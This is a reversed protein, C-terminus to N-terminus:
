DNYGQCGPCFYLRRSGFTTKQIIQRCQYCAKGARAFVHHRFQRRPVGEAKLQAVRDLDNTIGRTKYSQRTVELIAKALRSIERTKLDAIKMSPGMRAVFLIESRLYNGIGSLWSQDMLLHGIQRRTSKIASVKAQILKLDVNDCLIDPGLKSLFPHNLVEEPSLVEIASASFLLASKHSNHIALRLQRNTKPLWGPKGLFWKGYLQNHSYISLENSFTIILAKGRPKVLKVTTNRLIKEYAKLHSFAFFVETCQKSVLARSIRDAAIKIEPGEPM